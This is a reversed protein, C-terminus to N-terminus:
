FLSSVGNEVNVSAGREMVFRYPHIQKQVGFPRPIHETHAISATLSTLAFLFNIWLAWNPQDATEIIKLIFTQLVTQLTKIWM